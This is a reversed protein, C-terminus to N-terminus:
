FRWEKPLFSFIHKIVDVTWGNGIMKYRQTNSVGETYNDPLTQLRECEVPTYRRLFGNELLLDMDSHNGGCLCGAKIQNKKLNGKKDIKVYPTRGGGGATDLCVSKKDQYMVRYAKNYGNLSYEVLGNGRRVLKKTMDESLYYTKDTVVEELIDLLKINKDIPQDIGPINTWYFRPRSQASLLESNIFIPECGLIENMVPLWKKDVKVNELLWYKPKITKLANIFEFFLYSQGSFEFGSNKLELYQELSTIEVKEKTVMGEKKGAISFGQCPSGGILLDIGKYKSFDIKTVDGLRNSTDNPHNKDAIKIAYKDVESSYYNKVNFNELALRGCSMGDFLSVVNIEM